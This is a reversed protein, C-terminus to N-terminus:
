MIRIYFECRHHDSAENPWWNSSRVPAFKAGRAGRTTMEDVKHGNDAICFVRMYTAFICIHPRTAKAQARKRETHTWWSRFDIFTDSKHAGRQRIERLIFINLNGGPLLVCMQPPWKGRNNTLSEMSGDMYGDIWGGWRRSWWTMHTILMNHTAPPLLVFLVDYHLCM